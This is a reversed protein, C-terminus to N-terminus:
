GKMQGSGFTITAPGAPMPNLLTKGSVEPTSAFYPSTQTPPTTVDAGTDMDTDGDTQEKQPAELPAASATASPHHEQQPYEQKLGRQKVDSNPDEPKVDANMIDQVKNESLMCAVERAELKVLEDVDMSAALTENNTLPQQEEQKYGTGTDDHTAVLRQIVAAFKVDQEEPEAKVQAQRKVAPLSSPKRQGSEPVYGVPKGGTQM